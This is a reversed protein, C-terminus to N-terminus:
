KVKKEDLIQIQKSKEEPSFYAPLSSIGKLGDTVKTNAQAEDIGESVTKDWIPKTDHEMRKKSVWM